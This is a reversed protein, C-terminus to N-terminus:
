INLSPTGRRSFNASSIPQHCLSAEFYLRSRDRDPLPVRFSSPLYPNCSFFFTFLSCSPSFFSKYQEKTYRQTSLVCLCGWFDSPFTNGETEWVTKQHRVKTREGGKGGTREWAGEMAASLNFLFYTLKCASPPTSALLFSSKLFFENPKAPSVRPQLFEAAHTRSSRAAKRNWGSKDESCEGQDALCVSTEALIGRSWLFWLKVKTDM